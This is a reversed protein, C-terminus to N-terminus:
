ASPGVYGGDVPLNAGHIYGALPSCLFTVLSAVEEVTGPRGLAIFVRQAPRTSREPAGDPRAEGVPAQRFHRRTGSTAVLGAGIANVTIGTDALELALSATMNILAAKSASYEPMVALPRGAVSSAMQIIRGWGATKMHPVLGAVM